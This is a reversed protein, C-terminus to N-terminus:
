KPKKQPPRFLLTREEKTPKRTVTVLHAYDKDIILLSLMCLPPRDAQGVDLPIFYEAHVDAASLLPDCVPRWAVRDDFDIFSEIPVFFRRPHEIPFGLTM